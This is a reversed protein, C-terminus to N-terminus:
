SNMEEAVSALNSVSTLTSPHEVGLVKEKGELARRNRDAAGFAGHVTIERSSMLFICRGILM